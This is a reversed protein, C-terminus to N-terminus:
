TIESTTAPRRKSMDYMRQLRFSRIFHCLSYGSLATLKRHLQSRSVGISTSLQEVDFMEDGMNEEAMQFLEGWFSEEAANEAIDRLKLTGPGHVSLM